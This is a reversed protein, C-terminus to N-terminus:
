RCLSKHPNFHEAVRVESQLTQQWTKQTPTDADWKCKAFSSGTYQWENECVQRHLTAKTELQYPGNTVSFTNWNEFFTISASSGLKNLGKGKQSTICLVKISVPPEPCSIPWMFKTTWRADIIDFVKYDL